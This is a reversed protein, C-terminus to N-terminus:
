KLNGTRHRLVKQWIRLEPGKKLGIRNLDERSMIELVDELELEEELLIAIPSSQLSLDELWKSLTLDLNETSDIPAKSMSMIKNASFQKKPKTYELKRRVKPNEPLDKAEIGQFEVKTNRGIKHKLNEQEMRAKEQWVNVNEHNFVPSLNFLYDKITQRKLDNNRSKSQNAECQKMDSETTNHQKLDSHKMAKQILDGQAFHNLNSESNAKISDTQISLSNHWQEPKTVSLNRFMEESPNRCSKRINSSTVPSETTKSTFNQIQIKLKLGTKAVRTMLPMKESGM